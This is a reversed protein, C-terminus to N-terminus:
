LPGRENARDSEMLTPGIEELAAGQSAKVLVVDAASTNERLWAVARERLNAEIM